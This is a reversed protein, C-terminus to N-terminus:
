ATLSDSRDVGSDRQAFSGALQSVRSARGETVAAVWASSATLPAADRIQLHVRPDTTLAYGWSALCRLPSPKRRRCASRGNPRVGACRPFAPTGFETWGSAAMAPKKRDFRRELSSRGRQLNSDGNRAIDGRLAGDLSLSGFFSQASPPSPAAHNGPVLPVLPEFMLREEQV